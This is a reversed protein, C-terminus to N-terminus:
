LINIEDIDLYVAGKMRKYAADEKLNFLEGVVDVLSIHKPLKRSIYNFLKIQLASKRIVSDEKKTDM